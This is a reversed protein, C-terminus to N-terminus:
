CRPLQGELATFRWPNYPADPGRLAAPLGDPWGFTAKTWLYMAAGPTACDRVPSTLTVTVAVTYQPGTGCSPICSQIAETGRGVAKSWTWTPWTMDYLVITGDGSLPCGAACSPTRVITGRADQGEALFTRATGAAAARGTAPRGPAVSRAPATARAAPRRASSPAACGAASAGLAALLASATVGATVRM